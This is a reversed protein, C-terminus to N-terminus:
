ECFGDPGYGLIEDDTLEENIPQLNFSRVLALIEEATPPTQVKPELIVRKMQEDAASAIADTLSYGTLAALRELKSIVDPDTILLEM